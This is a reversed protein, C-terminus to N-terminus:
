HKKLFSNENKVKRKSKVKKLKKQKSVTVSIENETQKTQNKRIIEFNVLKQTMKV